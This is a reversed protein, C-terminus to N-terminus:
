AKTLFFISKKNKKKFRRVVEEYEEVTITTEINTDDEMMMEHLESQCKLLIKVEPKPINNKLVKVYHELIVRKIEECTM